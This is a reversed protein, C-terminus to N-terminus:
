RPGAGNAHWAPTTVAMTVNPSAETSELNRPTSSTHRRMKLVAWAFTASKRLPRDRYGSSGNTASHSNGGPGSAALIAM